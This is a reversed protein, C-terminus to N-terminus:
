KYTCAYQKAIKYTHFKGNDSNRSARCDASHMALYKQRAIGTRRTTKYKPM